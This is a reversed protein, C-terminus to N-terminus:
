IAIFIKRANCDINNFINSFISFNEYKPRFQPLGPPTLQFCAPICRQRRQFLFHFSFELFEVSSIMAAIPDAYENGNTLNFM